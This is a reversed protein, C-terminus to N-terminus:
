VSSAYKPPDYTKTQRICVELNTDVLEKGDGGDSLGLEM